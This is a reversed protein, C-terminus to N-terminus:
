ATGCIVIRSMLIRTRVPGDIHFRLADETTMEDDQTGFCRQPPISVPRPSLLAKSRVIPFLSEHFLRLLETLVFTPNSNARSKSWVETFDDTSHRLSPTIMCDMKASLDVDPSIEPSDNVIRTLSCALRYELV